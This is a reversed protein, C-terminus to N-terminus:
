GREGSKIDELVGQLVKDLQKQLHEYEQMNVIEYEYGRNYRNGGVVRVYGYQLLTRLYYKINNPNIRLHARVDSRYFSKSEFQQKLAELFDRCPGTLEDSKRLLVPALLKNAWEIDEVTTEIYRQGNADTKWPRQYQHYWTILEIFALYHANTRRPKFVENPIRLAEAYPNRIHVERLLYQMHQFSQQWHKESQENVLGASIKRQYAMIREDQDASSDLYILFSRNANDEYLSEKTTCAILCIPGEVELLMTKLRGKNDKLTVTKTLAGKSQMERIAYLVNQAGDLDEIVLVKHKLEEKQMYYLANDSLTTAILKEEDPICAAVREQLHTKGMGSKALSIVHVPKRRKRSSMALYMLLANNPEGIIGTKALDSLTRQMLNPASLYSEASQLQDASLLKEPKTRLKRQELQEMRYVELANTLQDLLKRMERSSSDLRTAVRKAYQEVQNDNYLDLGHRLLRDGSSMKLTVRLRDLGEISIGGMVTLLIDKSRYTLLEPNSTDLVGSENVREATDVTKVAKGISQREGLLTAFMAAAEEQHSVYMSNVDEGEPLAVYTLQVKPCLEKLTKAHHEVAKRGAEDGDLMFIIEELDPLSVMAKRHEAVLGNTGYLALVSVRHVGLDLGELSAADIVSECLLLVKTSAKPYCPYLGQRNKLYFHRNNGSELSRGYFSVVQGSENLLPFILCGKAWSRWGSESLKLLGLETCAKIFTEDKVGSASSNKRHLSGSNYGVLQTLSLGRSELYVRVNGAKSHRLSRKFYDFVKTLIEARNVNPTNQQITMTLFTKAKNIAEHKSCRDMRQILEIVDGSGAGCKSSFCTWTNTKPYIQLSPRKDDHWPCCVRNWRDMRLHYHSLVERIDLSSKIQEIEM